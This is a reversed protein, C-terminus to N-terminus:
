ESHVAPENDPQPMKENQRRLRQCLERMITRVVETCEETVDYFDEQDIRFARVPQLAVASASRPEADLLALEGFFEGKGFTTLLQRKNFIGVEGEYIIFLSTGLTGKAFIEEDQGYTVEHMIPVITALSNEPTQGFLATSKLMRVRELFSVASPSAHDTMASYSALTPYFQLLHDYAAPRQLPLRRLVEEASEQVLRNTTQLHPHLYTVNEPTPHWQRLAVSVTWASFAAIGRRIITTQISETLVAPGLLDDFTQVKESLRGVDLLAQLGQYLPRPILNDLIELANAQREGTAHALGRQANLLPGQDYLQILLGLLRQQSKRLEYRLTSRLEANANTMSHLMHQALRMEEEVLHQFLPADTPVAPLSSLARLAAARGHLNADQAMRVLVQRGAETKLRSCVQALERLFRADTEHALTDQLYPLIGDGIQVLCDAAPRRAAKSRLLGLLQSALVTPSVATAATTAAQVLATEQSSLGTTILAVQQDPLLFRVLQLAAVHHHATAALEALSAQAQVDSPVAELRGRIAGKRVAIDTHQLLDTANPHRCVLQSATERVTADPDHLLLYRLLSLKVRDGVMLLVRRRVEGAPHRLLTQAHQVLLPADIRHLHQLASLAEAAPVTPVAPQTRSESAPALALEDTTFRLGLANKLESLYQQYASQLLLLAVLLFVAMCGLGAWVPLGGAGRLLLLLLGGLGLGLPEYFSKVWTHGQLRGAPPLPQFLVLFVPEFLARRLVELGLYLGCFYAMQGMPGVGGARLVGFLVVGALAALPLVALTWRIGLRDLGHRAVLLKFVTALGYTLALVSGVYQLMSGQSQLKQKVNVFFLYEVGVAVVAIATLSLGMYLVLKRGRPSSHLQHPSALAVPQAAMAQARFTYRQMSLALVYMGFATLLLFYLDYHLHVFVALVAGLAKAPMDGASIIGFLRRSQRVNFVVASMGWFELNTLLYILRYGAMIAVAAVVSAGTVLLVSLVVTLVLTALLARVALKQLPWRHECYAYLRGVLLMAVAGACYGLPLNREPHNELLLVNAAVYVLITGIGLLFNHLFFLWVTKTEGPRVGLFRYWTNTNM